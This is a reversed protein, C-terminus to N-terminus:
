GAPAIGNEVWQFPLRRGRRDDAGNPLLPFFRAPLTGARM